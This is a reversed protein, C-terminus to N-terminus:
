IGFIKKLNKNSKSNVFDDKKKVVKEEKVEKVIPIEEKVEKSVLKVIVEEFMNSAINGCICQYDKNKYTRGCTKCKVM